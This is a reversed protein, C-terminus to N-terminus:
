VVYIAILVFHVASGAIVLSHFVEHFGFVRPSPNPRRLAYVVGGISYLVGGVLLMALAPGPMASVLQAAPIIGIWGLALYLGVSLWRPANPWVVKLLAGAGALSWVVALMPIGWADDLIVLCFPTYTGAILVFIMAHDVRQWLGRLRAPWPALHYNASAWYLLILSTAFIAAGVYRRPSDALLLLAVLGFPAVIATLLHSVGRLLPRPEGQEARAVDIPAPHRINGSAASV